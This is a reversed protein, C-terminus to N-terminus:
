IHQQKFIFVYPPFLKTYFVDYKNRLIELSFRDTDRLSSIRYREKLLNLGQQCEKVRNLYASESLERQIQSNIIIWSCDNLVAPIYEISGDQFDIFLFQDKKSLIIGCQDLKGGSNGLALNELKQDFWIDDSDIFSIYKAKSIRMGYNRCFAPGKNKHLKIIKVRLHGIIGIAKINM